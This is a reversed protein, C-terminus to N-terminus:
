LRAKIRKYAQSLEEGIVKAASVLEESTEVTDDYVENAKATFKDWNKEASEWEEKAEMSALHLQLTIEDRQKTLNDMLEKFEDQLNM